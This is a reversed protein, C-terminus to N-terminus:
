VEMLIARGGVLTCQAEQHEVAHHVEMQSILLVEKQTNNYHELSIIHESAETFAARPM